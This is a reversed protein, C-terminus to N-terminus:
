ILNLAIAAAKAIQGPGIILAILDVCIVACVDKLYILLTAVITPPVALFLDLLKLLGNFALEFVFSFLELPNTLKPILDLPSGMLSVIVNFPIKILGAMLDPLILNPVSSFPSLFAPPFSPLKPIDPIKLEAMIKVLDATFLAITPYKASIEPITLLKAINPPFDAPLDIGLKKSMFSPDFIPAPSTPPTLPTGGATDLAKFTSAFLGDLIVNHFGPCNEKKSLVAATSVFLLPNPNFWFLKDKTPDKPPLPLPFTKLGRGGNNGHELLLLIDTIIANRGAPALTGDKALLGIDTLIGM